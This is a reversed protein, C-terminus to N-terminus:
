EVESKMRDENSLHRTHWEIIEDRNREGVATYYWQRCSCEAQVDHLSLIKLEHQM